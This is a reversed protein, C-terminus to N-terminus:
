KSEASEPYPASPCPSDSAAKTASERPAHRPPLPVNIPALAFTTTADIAACRPCCIEKMRKIIIANGSMSNDITIELAYM